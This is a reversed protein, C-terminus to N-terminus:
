RTSGSKRPSADQDDRLAVFAFCYEGAHGCHGAFERRGLLAPAGDHVRLAFGGRDLDLAATVDLFDLFHGTLPHYLKFFAEKVAFLMKAADIGGATAMTAAVEGPSCVTAHLEVPLAGALEVDIGVGAFRTTSAAVAVCVEGSHSISGCVGQPWDPARTPLIAIAVPPQGLQALAARAYYRGAVFERRRKDVARRIAANEEAYPSATANGVAGGAFAIGAPLAARIAALVAAPAPGASPPMM